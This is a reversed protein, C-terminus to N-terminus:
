FRLPSRRPEDIIEPPAHMVFWGGYILKAVMSIGVLGTFIGATDVCARDLVGIGVCAGASVLLVLDLIIWFGLL